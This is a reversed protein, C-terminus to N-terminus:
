RTDNEILDKREKSYQEYGVDPRSVRECPPNHGMHQIRVGEYIGGYVGQRIDRGSCGALLAFFLAIFVSRVFSM